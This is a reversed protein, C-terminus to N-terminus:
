EQKALWEAVATEVMISKSIRGDRPQNRWFRDLDDLLTDPLYFTVRSKGEVEGKSTPKKPQKKAAGTIEDLLSPTEERKKSM